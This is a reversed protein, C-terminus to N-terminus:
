VLLVASIDVVHQTASEWLWSRRISSMTTKLVRCYATIEVKM